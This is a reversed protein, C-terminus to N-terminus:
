LSFRNGESWASHMRDFVNLVDGVSIAKMCMYDDCALDYCPVDCGTDKQIVRYNGKGYPGTLAPSTPGFLAIVNSKMAVAIHMPGSDGSIVFNAREVLAGLEKLNTKGAFIVLNQNMRKKIRGAIQLDKEAGSLVIKAGYKTILADCLEAFNEEIWRKPLWNGGPNVVILLDDKVVGNESLRDAIYRRERDSIFFEYDKNLIDCGISEAIKLFYEVKHLPRDPPEVPHTLIVGRKKTTYGAREKIGALYAMLARTFSRHLLIAFDFRKNRLSSILRQKGLLGKHAGKEDYIIIEDICPNYELIEKCRPVVMCAIYADKWRERVARIFPTSFLVDGLWNVEVILIRGYNKMDKLHDRLNGM